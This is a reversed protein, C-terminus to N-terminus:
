PAFVSSFLVLRERSVTSVDPLFPIHSVRVQKRQKVVGMCQFRERFSAFLERICTM